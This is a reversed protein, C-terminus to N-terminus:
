AGATNPPVWREQARTLAARAEAGLRRVVEGAPEERALPYAEGAWLNIAEADGSARAAARLPATLHHVHPYAAPAEAGHDDM